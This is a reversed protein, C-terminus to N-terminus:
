PFIQPETKKGSRSLAPNMTQYYYILLVDHLFLYLNNTGMTAGSITQLAGAPSAVGFASSAFVFQKYGSGNLESAGIKVFINRAVFNRYNHIEPSGPAPRALHHSRDEMLGGSLQLRPKAEGFDIRFGLGQNSLLEANLANRGGDDELVPFFDRPSDAGHIEGGKQAPHL